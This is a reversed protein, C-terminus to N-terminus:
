KALQTMRVWIAVRQIKNRPRSVFMIQNMFKYCKCLMHMGTSRTGDAITATQQPPPVQERCPTGEGPPTGAGLPSIGQGLPYRSRPPPHRSRPPPPIWCLKENQATM